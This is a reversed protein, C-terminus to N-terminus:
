ELNPLQPILERKFLLKEEDGPELELVVYPPAQLEAPPASTTTVIFQFPVRDGKALQMAAESATLFFSRYLNESLDAERPCDHVLFSPHSNAESTASDLLCVIDGLLVELVQIAEGGRAVEFPSHEDDPVFRTYGPNGLLRASVCSTLAKIAEERSSQQSQRSVVTTQLASLSSELEQQQKRARILDDSDRGEARQTHLSHFEDWTSMLLRRSSESTASRLLLQHLETRLADIIRNQEAVNASAADLTAQHTSLQKLLRPKNEEAEKADRYRTMDISKRRNQVYECALFDIDGHICRQGDLGELTARLRTLQQYTADNGDMLSQAINRDIEAFQQSREIKALRLQEQALQKELEEAKSAWQREEQKATELSAQVRSEVSTDTTTEFLPENESAGLRVRLRDEALKLRFVPERELDSISEKIQEIETQKSNLKQLLAHLETDALGLVSRVFLPPNRRSRAFGLGDSNRWHYFGDFRTKQDRVCWALLHRWKLPQGMGPLSQAPLRGISFRELAEQYSLFDSPQSEQLLSELPENLTQIALSRGHAGYPRFVLWAAGDIHVKAAIGGKPFCGVAKDRLMTIDSAEDGLVYRMLLCLSTKGVGHGANALSTFDDVKPEKAWVINLGPHLAITRTLVMPERSEVLWLTEVWLRPLERIASHGELWHAM